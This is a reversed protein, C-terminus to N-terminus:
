KVLVYRITQGERQWEIYSDDDSLLVEEDFKGDGTTDLFFFFGRGDSDGEYDGSLLYQQNGHKVVAEFSGDPRFVWVNEALIEDTSPNYVQEIPNPTASYVHLETFVRGGCALTVIVFVAILIILHLKYTNVVRM